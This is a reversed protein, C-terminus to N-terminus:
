AVVIGEGQMQELVAQRVRLQEACLARPDSVVEIRLLTRVNDAGSVGLFRPAATLRSGEAKQLHAGVEDILEAARKM